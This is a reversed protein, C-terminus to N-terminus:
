KKEESEAPSFARCRLPGTAPDSDGHLAHRVRAADLCERLSPFVVMFKTGPSRVTFDASLAGTVGVPSLAATVVLVAFAFFMARIATVAIALGVGSEALHGLFERRESKTIIGQLRLSVANWAAPGFLWCGMAFAVLAIADAILELILAM